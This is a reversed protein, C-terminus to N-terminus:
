SYSLFFCDESILSIFLVISMNYLIMVVNWDNGDNLFIYVVYLLMNIMMFKIKVIIMFLCIGFLYLIILVIM